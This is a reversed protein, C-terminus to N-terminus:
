LPHTAGLSGLLLQFYFEPSRTDPRLSREAGASAWPFSPGEEGRGQTLVWRGM